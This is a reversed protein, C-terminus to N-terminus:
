ERDECSLEDFREKKKIVLEFMTRIKMNFYIMSKKKYKKKLKKERRGKNWKYLYETSQASKGWM